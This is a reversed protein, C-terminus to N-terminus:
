HGAGASEAAASASPPEAAAAGLGAPGLLAMDLDAQALWFDRLADIAGNVSAIQSRADALLEFVGILMGNYRLLNEESIRQKLPVIEDRQHKAIDWASRYAGYAERVESRANIATEAARNLTQMYISEAKAVRATGWDFLPLELGIEWGRQTPAENSTSRMLGLELVNVFRTTRTLGLNKATQESALRAGQVDLRQAMAIREIDPLERASAPLDPLREPLRYATQAGWLGLLRTLRERAALQQRQAQALGLAADAYFSQERTRQLRNFNGVEAMRRALEASAEAAQMVQGRYRVAEEAAVALVWAKRTQAALTLVRNLAAAQAQAHRRTELERVLPLTLLRALNLHLGLEREIEDGQTSRGFSFGPNPLRGAQVLDAESIGLEFFDAQLGRNNLLALQVADDMALPRSLLADVRQAIASRDEDSRAWRLERGLHERAGQEVPGFGGDSSFSACGSLLLLAATATLLPRLGRAPRPRRTQRHQKSPGM